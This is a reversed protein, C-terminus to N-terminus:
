YPFVNWDDLFFEIGAIKKLISVFEGTTIGFIEAGSAYLSQLQDVCANNIICSVDFYSVDVNEIVWSTTLFKNGTSNLVMGGYLFLSPVKVMIYNGSNVAMAYNSFVWRIYFPPDKPLEELAIGVQFQRSLTDVSYKYYWFIDDKPLKQIGQVTQWLREWVVGERWVVGWNEFFIVTKQIDDPLPYFLKAAGFEKLANALLTVNIKRDANRADVFITNFYIWFISLLIALIWLVVIVEVFTFSRNYKKM